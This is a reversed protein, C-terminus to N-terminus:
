SDTSKDRLSDVTQDLYHAIVSRKVGAAEAAQVVADIKNQLGFDNVAAIQHQL